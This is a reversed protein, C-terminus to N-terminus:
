NTDNYKNVKIYLTVNYFFKFINGVEFLLSQSYAESTGCLLTCKVKSNDMSFLSNFDPTFVLFKFLV